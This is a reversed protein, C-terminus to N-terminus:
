FLREIAQDVIGYIVITLGIISGFFLYFKGKTMTINKDNKKTNSM